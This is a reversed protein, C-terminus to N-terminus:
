ARVNVPGYRSTVPLYINARPLASPSRRQAALGRAPRAARTASASDASVLLMSHMSTTRTRKMRGMVTAARLLGAARVARAPHRLAHRCEGLPARLLRARLVARDPRAGRRAPSYLLGFLLLRGYSDWYDLFDGRVTHGTEPFFRAGQASVSAPRVGALPALALGIVLLLWLWHKM